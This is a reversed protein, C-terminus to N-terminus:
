GLVDIAATVSEHDHYNNTAVALFRRTRNSCLLFCLSQDPAHESVGSRIRDVASGFRDGVVYVYRPVLRAGAFRMYSSVLQIAVAKRKGGLRRVVRGRAPLCHARNDPFSDFLKGDCKTTSRAINRAISPNVGLAKERLVCLTGAPRSRWPFTM